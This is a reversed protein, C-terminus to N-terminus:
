KWTWVVRASSDVIKTNFTIIILTVINDKNNIWQKHCFEYWLANLYICKFHARM